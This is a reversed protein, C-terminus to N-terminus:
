KFLDLLEAATVVKRGRPQKPAPKPAEQVEQKPIPLGPIAINIINIGSNGLAISSIVILTENTTASLKNISKDDIRYREGSPSTYSENGTVSVQRDKYVDRLIPLLKSFVGNTTFPGIETEVGLRTLLKLSQKLVSLMEKFKKNNISNEGTWRKTTQESTPFERATETYDNWMNLLTEVDSEGRYGDFYQKRYKDIRLSYKFNTEDSEKRPVWFYSPGYCDILCMAVVCPFM